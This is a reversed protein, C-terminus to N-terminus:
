RELIVTLGFPVERVGRPRITRGLHSPLGTRPSRPGIKKGMQSLSRGNRGLVDSVAKESPEYGKEDLINDANRDFEVWRDAM